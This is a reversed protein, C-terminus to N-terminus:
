TSQGIEWGGPPPVDRIGGGSAGPREHYAAYVSCFAQVGTFFGSVFPIAKGLGEAADLAGARLLGIISTNEGIHAPLVGEIQRGAASYHSRGVDNFANYFGGEGFISAAKTLGKRCKTTWQGSLDPHNVPDGDGYTYDNACGGQVPDVSLFRGDVISYPRAGMLVLNGETLRGQSGNYAYSGGAVATDSPPLQGAPLEGYPGWFGTWTTTNSSNAILITDGHLNTYSWGSGSPTTNYTIGGSLQINIGITTFSTNQTFGSIDTQGTYGSRTITTTPALAITLAESPAALTSSASEATTQGPQQQYRDSVIQSVSINSLTSRTTDGSPATPGLVLSYGVVHVVTDAYNATTVQPLPQSTSSPDNVSATVDIPSTTNPNHYDTISGVINVSVANTGFTWSSPDGSAAPHAFVWTTNSGNQTGAIQSWGTPITAGSQNSTTIAALLEDGTNTAAPRNLTIASGATVTATTTNGATIKTISATQAPRNLPDRAYINLYGPADDFTLRDSSDYTFSESGEQITNGHADYVVTGSPANTSSNLRDANDYCYNTTTNTTGVTITGSTRNTNAGANNSACGTTAAYSYNYTVGPLYAQTVRGAGDYTYNPGNPNADVFTGNAYVQQDIVRGAPSFTAIEGSVVNTTYITRAYQRGNTDYYLLQGGNTTGDVYVANLRGNTSDYTDTALQLSGGLQTVTPRGAQDFNYSVIGQPGNTSYIRGVQDYATTSTNGWIDTYGTTRDLLDVTSSISASGWNNDTVSNVLPNSAVAYSYTVTRAAANGFAPYSQSSIRGDADYTTCQWGASNITNVSGTRIGVQRGTPDYVYQEVRADGSGTAPAPDTRQQLAGAQSTTASVGCVAAIPGATNGYYTYTPGSGAPLTKSLARLYTGSGPTEYTTTTTLNLGNPDQTVSTPLGFQPGIGHVTDTYSTTTIKNDPDTTQTVLGYNPDFTAGTPNSTLNLHGNAVFQEDDVTITHTSSTQGPATKAALYHVAVQGATLANPYVAADALNGNFFFGNDARSGITMEAPSKTTGSLTDDHLSTPVPQGDVYFTVGAAKSSGDYTVVLHHWNGDSVSQNASVYLDNTEWSNILYFYPQGGNTGVEWGQYPSSNAMKSMIEQQSTSNTTKVWAELSFSQTNDLELNPSDPIQITGSSGDLNVSHAPDPDGPYAGGLLPGGEVYTVGPYTYTGPNSGLLDMAPEGFGDSLRWFSTPSDAQVAKPYPTFTGALYHNRLQASTLTQPYLAVNSLYGSFYTWGNGTNAPWASSEYAGGVESYAALNAASAGGATAVQTGDVYLAVNGAGDYTLAVDHWMGDQGFASGSSFEAPYIGGHLNGDSGIYLLPDYLSPPSGAVPTSQNGFIPGVDGLGADVWAEITFPSGNRFLQNPLQVYNSSGANFAGFNWPGTPVGSSLPGAAINGVYSGNTSGWSDAATTAGPGDGLTWYGGSPTDAEIAQPLPYNYIAPGQTVVSTQGGATYHAAVRSSSLTLNPYISVDAMEGTLYWPGSPREGLTIPATSVSTASLTDVFTTKAAATGDVYFGVGAAKSSGDYTVTLLHWTGTTITNTTTVDIANSPWNNILLLYPTGQYIGFEWGTLASSNSLKSLIPQIFGTSSIKVWAEVSFPEANSMETTPTDPASVNYSTGNFTAATADADALRPDSQGPMSGSAYTGQDSGATDAAVTTGSAEGLRWWNSPADQRVQSPYPGGLQNLYPHGDVQVQGGDGDFSVRTGNSVSTIGTLHGSFPTFCSTVCPPNATCAIQTPSPSCSTNSNSPWSESPAALSHYVPAGSFSTNNYWGGALGSMNQDYATTSTAVNQGSIPTGNAQFSTSPAPGYANVVHGQTDFASSSEIGAPTTTSILRDKADWVYNTAFGASDRTSTVRERADYRTQEAFGVNPSFGMVALSSVNPTPSTCDLATVVGSGTYSGSTSAQIQFGGTVPTAVFSGNVGLLGQASAITVTQNASVPISSTVTTTTGNTSIASISYFTSFAAQTDGYCYGREPQNQGFVNAGAFPAPSIVTSVRGQADYSIQTLCQIPYSSPCDSTRTLGAAIVNYALPDEEYTLRGNSDYGFAYIVPQVNPNSPQTYNAIEALEGNKYFLNTATGDWFAIQCLTGAPPSPDYYSSPPSPCATGQPTSTNLDGGYTLSTSKTSVPDTITRLLPEPPKATNNLFSSSYGYSLAARHLDDTASKVSSVAGSTNFTYILGADPDDLLYNGSTDVRLRDNPLQAPPSYNGGGANTFEFGTGDSSYITVSTGHDALGIWSAQAANSNFIWGASLPGPAHSLWSSEVPFVQLGGTTDELYLQAAPAFNSSHSWTITIPQTQGTNTFTAGFTPATGAAHPGADSIYSGNTGLAVAMGDSSIEGIAVSDNAFIGGSTPITIEGTWTVAASSPSQAAELWSSGPPFDITPDVRIGVPVQTGNVVNYYSGQLGPLVGGSTVALSNYTFGLALGGGVTPLNPTGVTFSANGDIMNISVNSGPLGPSPAGAAPTSSQGPVSGVSDTPSPGGSGLGLRVSFSVGWSPPPMTLPVGNGRFHGQLNKSWDTLVWAHYTVGEQLSGVPVTWAPPTDPTVVGGSCQNIDGIEGSDIVLGANPAPGTTVQYDYEPDQFDACQLTTEAIDQAQLTPTTTALLAGQPVNVVRSPPPPVDLFTSFFLEYEREPTAGGQFPVEDFSFWQATLSKAMWCDVETYVFSTISNNVGGADPDTATAFPQSKGCPGTGVGMQAYSTPQNGQDYLEIATTPCGPPQNQCSSVQFNTSGIPVVPVFTLQSDYARMGQGVNPDLYYSFTAAGKWVANSGDIGVYVDNGTTVSGGQSSYSVAASGSTATPNVENINPDVTVPFDVMPLSRLWVPDVSVILSGDLGKVYRAHSATTVDADRATWVRPPAIAFRDALPGTFRFGGDASAALGAGKLTFSVTSPSGKGVLIVDESVGGSSVTVALNAGPWVGDWVASSAEPIPSVSPDTAHKAPDM